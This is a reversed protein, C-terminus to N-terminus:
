ERVELQEPRYVVHQQDHVLRLKAVNILEQHTDFRQARETLLEANCHVNGFRADGIGFLVYASPCM